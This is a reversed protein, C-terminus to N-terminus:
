VLRIRLTGIEKYIISLPKKTSLTIIRAGTGYLLHSTLYVHLDNGTALISHVADLIQNEHHKALAFQLSGIEVADYSFTLPPPKRHLLVERYLRRTIAQPLIFGAQHETFLWHIGSEEGPIGEHEGFAQCWGRFYAAYRKPERELLM